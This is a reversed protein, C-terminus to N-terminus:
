YTNPTDIRTVPTCPTLKNLTTGVIGKSSSIHMPNTESCDKERAHEQSHKGELRERLLCRDHSGSGVWRTARNRIHRNRTM